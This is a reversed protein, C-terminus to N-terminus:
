PRLCYDSKDPQNSKRTLVEAVANAPPVRSDGYCGIGHIDIRGDNQPFSWIDYACAGTGEGKEIARDIEIDSRATGPASRLWSRLRVSGQGNSAIEIRRDATVCALKVRGAPEANTALALRENRNITLTVQLDCDAECDAIWLEGAGVAYGEANVFLNEARQALTASIVEADFAIDFREECDAVDKLNGAPRPYQLMSCAARRDGSALNAQLKQLFARVTAPSARYQSELTAQAAGLAFALAVAL